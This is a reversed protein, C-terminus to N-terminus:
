SICWWVNKMRGGTQLNIQLLGFSSWFYWRDKTHGFAEMGVFVDPNMGGAGIRWFMEELFLTVFEWSLDHPCKFLHFTKEGPVDETGDEIQNLEKIRREMVLHDLQVAISIRFSGDTDSTLTRM